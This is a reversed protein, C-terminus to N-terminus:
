RFMVPFKFLHQRPKVNLSHKSRVHNFPVSEEPLIREDVWLDKKRHKENSNMPLWNAVVEELGFSFRELFERQPQWRRILSNRQLDNIRRNNQLGTDLLYGVVQGFLPDLGYFERKLVTEIDSTLFRCLFMGEHVGQGLTAPQARYVYGVVERIQESICPRRQRWIVKAPHKGVMVGCFTM